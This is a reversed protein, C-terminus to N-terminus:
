VQVRRPVLPIHEELALEVVKLVEDEDRPFVIADPIKGQEKDLGRVSNLRDEISTSFHVDLMKLREVNLTM